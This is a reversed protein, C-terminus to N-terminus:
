QQLGWSFVGTNAAGPNKEHWPLWTAGSLCIDSACFKALGIAM